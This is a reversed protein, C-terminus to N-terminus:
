TSVIWPPRLQVSALHWAEVLETRHDDMWVVLRQMQAPPLDGRLATGTAIEVSVQRGGYFAHLHPPPHYAFNIRIAIGRFQAVQPV